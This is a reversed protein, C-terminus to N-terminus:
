LSNTGTTDPTNPLIHQRFFSWITSTADLQSDPGPKGHHRWGFSPWTHVGGAIRYHILAAGDKCGPYQETTVAGHQSLITPTASCGDRKAWAALWQPVTPYPPLLLSPPRGQYPNIHDGTGHIELLPVPRSPYCGGPQDPYDGSVIGFAAIRNAFHCALVATFGGGNSFGTAYIRHSDICLRQQLSTILDGTFLLDNTAPDIRRHTNWGTHLDPGVEGQPYAVIFQQTDALKSFGTYQAFRAATNGHGHFALVLAVPHRGDYGFPVHLVYHRTTTGVLLTENVTAGPAIPSTHGCGTTAVPATVIHTTGKVAIAASTTHHGIPLTSACSVVVLALLAAVWFSKRQWWRRQRAGIGPTNYLDCMNGSAGEGAGSREQKEM